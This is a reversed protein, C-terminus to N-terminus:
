VLGKRRLQSYAKRKMKRNPVLRYEQYMEGTHSRTLVPKGEDDFAYERKYGEVQKRYGKFRKRQESIKRSSMM